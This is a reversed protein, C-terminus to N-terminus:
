RYEFHRRLVDAQCPYFQASAVKPTSISVFLTTIERVSELSVPADSQTIWERMGLWWRRALVPGCWRCAANTRCTWPWGAERRRNLRSEMCQQLRGAARFEGASHLLAIIECQMAATEITRRRATM